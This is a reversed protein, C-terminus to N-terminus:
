YEFEFAIWESVIINKNRRCHKNGNVRNMKNNNNTHIANMRKNMRKEKSDTNEKKPKKWLFLWVSNVKM